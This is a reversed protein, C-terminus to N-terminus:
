HKYVRVAILSCLQTNINNILHEKIQQGPDMMKKLQENCLRSKSSGGSLPRHRYTSVKIAHDNTAIVQWLVLNRMIKKLSVVFFNKKFSIIVGYSKM